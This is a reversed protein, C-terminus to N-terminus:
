FIGNLRNTTKLDLNFLQQNNRLPPDFEETYGRIGPDAKLIKMGTTKEPCSGPHVSIYM